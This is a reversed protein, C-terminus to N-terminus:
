LVTKPENHKKNIVSVTNRPLRFIYAVDTQNLKYSSMAYMILQNRLTMLIAKEKKPRSM